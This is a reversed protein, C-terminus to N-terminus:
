QHPKIQDETGQSMNGPCSLCLLVRTSFKPWGPSLDVLYCQTGLPYSQLKCFSCKITFNVIKQVMTTLSGMSWGLQQTFFLTILTTHCYLSKFTARKHSDM